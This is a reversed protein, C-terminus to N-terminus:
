HSPVECMGARLRCHETLLRRRSGFSHSASAPRCDGSSAAHGLGAGPAVLCGVVETVKTSAASAEIAISLCGTALLLYLFGFGALARRLRIRVGGVVFPSRLNSVRMPWRLTLSSATDDTDRRTREAVGLPSRFECATMPWRLSLGWAVEDTGPPTRKYRRLDTKLSLIIRADHPARALCRRINLATEELFRLRKEIPDIRRNADLDLYISVCLVLAAFASAAL